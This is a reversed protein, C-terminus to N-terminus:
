KSPKIEIKYATPEGTMKVKESIEIGAIALIDSGDALVPLVNRLRAPVKRDILYSALKKTGGGFKTFVDGDKRFRWVATKPVKRYDLYIVAKEKPFEKFCGEVVAYYKKQIKHSKLQFSLQSNSKETLALIVLGSVPKDIRNVCEIIEPKYGLIEQIEKEFIYPLYSKNKQNGVSNTNEEFSCVEGSVKNIIAFEKDCFIVRSKM